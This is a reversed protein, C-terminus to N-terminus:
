AGLIEIAGQWGDKGRPRMLRGPPNSEGLSNTLEVSELKRKTNGICCVSIM